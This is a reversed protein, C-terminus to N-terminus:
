LVALLFLLFVESGATFNLLLHQIFTSLPAARKGEGRRSGVLREVCITDLM